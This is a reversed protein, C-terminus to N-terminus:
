EEFFVKYADDLYRSLEILSELMDKRFGSNVFSEPLLGKFDGYVMNEVQKNTLLGLLFEEPMAFLAITFAAVDIAGVGVEAGIITRLLNYDPEVEPPLTIQIGSLDYKSGSTKDAIGGKSNKPEVKEKEKVRQKKAVTPARIISLASSILYADQISSKRVTGKEYDIAVEGRDGLITLIADEVTIQEKLAKILDNEGEPANPQGNSQSSSVSNSTVFCDNFYKVNGIQAYSANKDYENLKAEEVSQEEPESDTQVQADPQAQTEVTTNEKRKRSFTAKENINEIAKFLCNNLGGLAANLRLIFLSELIGYRDLSESDSALAEDTTITGLTQARSTGSYRDLRIRIIAEILSPKVQQSNITRRFRDSFPQAVIKDPENICNAIRGDQVPIMFLLHYDKKDIQNLCSAINLRDADDESLILGVSFVERFKNLDYDFRQNLFDEINKNSDKFQSFNGSFEPIRLSINDRIEDCDHRPLGILRMFTNISPELLSLNDSVSSELRDDSANYNEYKSVLEYPLFTSKKNRILILTEEFDKTPDYFSLDKSYTDADEKKASAQADFRIYAADDTYQGDNPNTDQLIQEASAVAKALLQSEKMKVPDAM